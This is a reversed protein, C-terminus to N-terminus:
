DIKRFSFWFWGGLLAWILLIFGLTGYRSWGPSSGTQVDEKSLGPDALINLDPTGATDEVFQITIEPLPPLTGALSADPIAFQRDQPLVTGTLVAGGIPTSAQNLSGGPTPTFAQFPVVTTPVGLYPSVTTPIGPYASTATVQGPSSGSSTATSTRTPTSTSTPSAQVAGTGTPTPTATPTSTSTVDVQGPIASIPDSLETTQDIAVSELIYWKRVGQTVDYDPYSYSAGTLGLSQTEFYEIQLYTGFEQDSTQIFFGANDIETATEWEVLIHDSQGTATFSILTVAARARVPLSFLLALFLIRLSLIVLRNLKQGAPRISRM